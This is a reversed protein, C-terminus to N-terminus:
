ATDDPAGAITPRGRWGRRHPVSRVIPAVAAPRPRHGARAACSPSFGAGGVLTRLLLENGDAAAASHRRPDAGGPPRRRTRRRGGAWRQHKMAEGEVRM